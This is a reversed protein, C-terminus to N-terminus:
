TAFAAVADVGSRQIVVAKAEGSRLTGPADAGSYLEDWALAADRAIEAADTVTITLDQSDSLLGPGDDTVTVTVAYQNNPHSPNEFDPAAIFTLVGTSSGINFLAADPGSKTFTLTQAPLDTDTAVVTTVPTTNEVVSQTGTAGGLNSTITPATNVPATSYIYTEGGDFPSNALANGALDFTQPPTGTGKIVFDFSGEDADNNAFTVTASTTAVTTPNFAIKFTTTGGSIAVPTTPQQTVSFDTAPSVSVFSPGGTLDLAANGSNSITYTIEVVGGQVPTSGFDTANTTSAAALLSGDPINNGNGTVAIEPAVVTITFSTQASNGHADTATCVVTNVGVAFTSGSALVSFVSVPGDVIDSATPSGFTVVAGAPGTAVIGTINAPTNVIVPPTTDVVTITFSTQASNSSLDTASCVVTSTGIPFTSGSPPVCTVPRSGDVADNATPNTYTVVAGAPGTAEVGPINAPTNSIVPPTTDTAAVPPAIVINNISHNTASQDGVYGGASIYLRVDDVNDFTSDLNIATPAFAANYGAFTTSAVEVANRYGKVTITTSSTEGWNYYLFQNLQFESGDSSKIAMGKCGANQDYTLASYGSDGSALFTNNQWSMLGLNTGGTNTINIVQMIIGAIDSSGAEGDQAIGDGLGTNQTFMMTGTIAPVAAARTVVISYTKITTGDQATVQVQITNAGVALALAASPSGSTVTAFANAGVRAQITANAQARTPTVTVSSTANPVSSTYAITNAAFAENITATTLALASLDANNSLAVAVQKLNVALYLTDESSTTWSM